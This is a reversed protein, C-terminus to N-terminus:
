PNMSQLLVLAGRLACISLISKGLFTKVKLVVLSVRAGGKATFGKFYCKYNGSDKVTSNEVILEGMESINVRGFFKANIITYNEGISGKSYDTEHITPRFSQELISKKRIAVKRFTGNEEYSWMFQGNRTTSGTPKSPCSLEADMGEYVSVSLAPELNAILPLFLIRVSNVFCITNM